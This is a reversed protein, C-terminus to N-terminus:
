IDKLQSMVLGDLIDSESVLCSDFGFYDMLAILIATGGIIIDARQDELGSIKSRQDRNQSIMNQFIAKIDKKLLRYHHTLNPDYSDLKLNIAALTTITGAVGVLTRVSKIGPLIKVVNELQFNIEEFALHLEQESPPDTHLFRETIRVCGMDTSVAEFEHKKGTTTEMVFETSGGGLDVVVFPALNNDIGATAGLFSLQGEEEGSLLEPPKSLLEKVPNFFDDRNSADRAASTATIRFSSVNNEDMIKKYKKIVDITRNIARQDLLGSSDVGQGLRTIESLRVKTNGSFDSILLRTSNTGCDIAAVALDKDM